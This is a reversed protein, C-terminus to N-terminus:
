SGLLADVEAMRDITEPDNELSILRGGLVRAGGRVLTPGVARDPEVATGLARAM